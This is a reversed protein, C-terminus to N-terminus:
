NPNSRLQIGFERNLQRLLDDQANNIQETTLTGRESQFAIRYAISKKDSDIDNGSYMDFPVTRVVLKHRNLITEVKSSPLEVPLILALDRISEPFRTPTKYTQQLQKSAALLLEVDLEFLIVTSNEINFRELVSHQVQGIIGLNVGQISVQATRGSQLIEDTGMEFSPNLGLGKLLYEVTGKGDYFDMEIAPMLWSVPHRPGSLIGVLMEVENPLDNNKDAKKRIFVRGIEFIRISDTPGFHLNKSLISLSKNRLSTRLHSYDSSMQNAIKIPEPLYSQSQIKGLEAMNTLSYSITEQMGSAVLLDRLKEKIDLLPNPPQHPISTSLSTTPIKDYGIIRALEEVLDEEINIDARWYPPIVDFDKTKGTSKKVSCGLSELTKIVLSKDLDIGLLRRIGRGTLKVIQKSTVNKRNDILGKAVQGGALETILKTARRLAIPALTDRIGREFRYSADTNIRLAASTQRISVPDFSAAEILVSTTSEDVATEMGGIIGALAIPKSDNSITLTPPGLIENKDELTVLNEEKDAHRVVIQNSDVKTFDFSHLPQGYELMVYNTIDVINNIPRTDAKILADQLWQPSPGVNINKILSATYRPCLNTAKIDVEVQTEIAPGTEEYASDPETVTENTLAAIEHAIGLISLCDPRNPTVDIELITDGMYDDLPIGIPALSDLVLIGDSHDELGLEEGSCVMGASHVGRINAPRLAEMKGSKSNLLVAGERAFAIKQDPEVNPAGCVVTINESDGIDVTTLNLRDANPHKEIQDIKGIIIKERDWNGIVTLGAVEVGALTLKESIETPTINIPVYSKLWSIPVKM